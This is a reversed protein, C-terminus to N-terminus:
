CRDFVYGSRGPGVLERDRLVTSPPTDPDACVRAFTGRLEDAYEIDLVVDYVEAYAACEDWRHCGEAVVLDFGAEDRGRTGLEVANKQAVALGLGHARVVLLAALELAGDVTLRDGSRTWSDLNDLEVADFGQEACRQITAGVLDAIAVRRRATSHDLLYEQPWAPDVVPTGDVATLVLDPHDSLWTASADPQTQFANVYCISYAGPEPRDTSDRAVGGIGDPLPYGGGLQYDVVVGPEPLLPVVDRQAGADAPACGALVLALLAGVLHGQRAM